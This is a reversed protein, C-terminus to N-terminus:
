NTKAIDTLSQNAKVIASFTVADSQTGDALTYTFSAETLNTGPTYVMTGPLNADSYEEILNQIVQEVTYYQNTQGPIAITTTQDLITEFNTSVSAPVDIYVVGNILTENNADTFPSTPVVGNNEQIAAESIYYFKGSDAPFELVTTKSENAKVINSFVANDVTVWENTTNNWTQFSAQGDTIVI